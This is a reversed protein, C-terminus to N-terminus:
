NFLLKSKALFATKPAFLLSLELLNKNKIMFPDFFQTFTGNQTGM